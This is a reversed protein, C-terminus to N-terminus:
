RAIWRPSCDQYDEPRDGVAEQYAIPLRIESQADMGCVTPMFSKGLSSRLHNTAETTRTRTPHAIRRRGNSVIGTVPSADNAPPMMTAIPSPIM